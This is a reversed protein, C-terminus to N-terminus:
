RQHHRPVGIAVPRVASGAAGKELLGQPSGAAPGAKGQLQRENVPDVLPTDLGVAVVRREGIYRASL